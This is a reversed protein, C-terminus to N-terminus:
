KHKPKNKKKTIRDEIRVTNKERISELGVKIARAIEFM